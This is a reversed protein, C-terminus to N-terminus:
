FSQFHDVFTVHMCVCLCISVVTAIRLNMGVPWPPLCKSLCHGVSVLMCQNEALAGLCGFFSIVIVIVGFTILLYAETNEPLADNPVLALHTFKADSRMWVGIGSIAWGTVQYLLLKM